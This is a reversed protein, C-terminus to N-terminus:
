CRIYRSLMKKDKLLDVLGSGQTGDENIEITFNSEFVPHTIIGFYDTPLIPQHLFAIAIEKCYELNTKEVMKNEGESVIIVYKKLKPQM